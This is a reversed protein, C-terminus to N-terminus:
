IIRSNSRNNQLENELFKKVGTESNELGLFKLNFNITGASFFSLIEGENTAGIPPVFSLHFNKRKDLM